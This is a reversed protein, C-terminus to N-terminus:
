KSEVKTEERIRNLESHRSADVAFVALTLVIVLLGGINQMAYQVRLPLRRNRRLLEIIAIVMQGGDLPPIPLLNMIGLSISLLGALLLVQLPGENVSASTQEVMSTPGGVNEKAKQLSTLTEAVNIAMNIPASVAFEMAELPSAPRYNPTPVMGLQAHRRKEATPELNQDLVNIPQPTITPKFTFNLAKGKRLADVTIPKPILEGNVETYNFRVGQVIDYFNQVPKGNIATIKDGVKMGAAQAPGVSLYAITTSKGDPQGQLMVNAFILMMGFVISFLPGAFLVLLRQLPPRSFFGGEIKSESGDEFPRMGKIAAFGGLPLLLLSFETGNRDTRSLLPRFQVPVTQLDARIQGRGKNGEPDATTLVPNYYVILVAAASGAVFVTLLYGPEVNQFQTGFFLIVTVVAWSFGFVKALFDPTQHYLERLRNAIWLPGVFALFIMGAYFGPQFNLVASVATATAIGGNIAWVVWAPTQPKRLYQTLDTKRIGGVMVAFAEVHMGCLRAFLYHGLEHVAVLITIVVLFTIGVNLAHLATSFLEM